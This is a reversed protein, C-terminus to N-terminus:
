GEEKEAEVLTASSMFKALDMEYVKSVEYPESIFKIFDLGKRKCSEVGNHTWGRENRPRTLVVINIKDLKFEDGRTDAVLATRAYTRITKRINKM